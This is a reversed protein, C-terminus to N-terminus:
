NEASKILRMVEIYSETCRFSLQIGTVAERCLRIRCGHKRQHVSVIFATDLAFRRHKFFSSQHLEIIKNM